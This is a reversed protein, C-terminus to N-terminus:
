RSRKWRNHSWLWYPPNRRITRELMRLYEVTFPNEEGQLGASPLIPRLTLHYYGRRRPEVDVYIFDAGVKRGIVEGGNVYPTDIGMFDTWHKLEPTFPRQDAIFGCIFNQGERKLGLLYRVTRAMPINLTGFRSRLDLMLRDFVKDSLPHYVECMVAGPEIHRAMATVWEWNGYHGLLLIVPRSDRLPANILEMGEVTVRRAMERDSVHALKAAEVFVDCLHSYFEREWAARQGASAEPFARRLNDAVMGRRYKVVRYLMFAAFDSLGYLLGLPLRAVTGLAGRMLRYRWRQGPTLSQQITDAANV